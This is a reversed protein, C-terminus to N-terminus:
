TQQVKYLISLVGASSFTARNKKRERGVNKSHNLFLFLHRHHNVRKLRESRELQSWKVRNETTFGLTPKNLHLFGCYILPQMCTILPLVRALSQFQPSCKKKKLCLQGQPTCPSDSCVSFMCIITFIIMYLSSWNFGANLKLELRTHAALATHCHALHTEISRLARKTFYIPWITSKSTLATTM